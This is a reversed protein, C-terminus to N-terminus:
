FEPFFSNPENNTEFWRIMMGSESKAKVTKNTSKTNVASPWTDKKANFFASACQQFVQDLTMDTPFFTQGDVTNKPAYGIIQKPDTFNGREKKYQAIELTYSKPLKIVGYTNKNQPNNAIQAMSILQKNEDKIIM